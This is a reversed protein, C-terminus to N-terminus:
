KLKKEMFVINKKENYKLKKYFGFAKSKKDSILRLKRVGKQKYKEEAFKVLAKGIGKGQYKSKLWLENISAKKNNDTDIHIVIFGAIERDIIGVYIDQKKFFNNTQKFATESNWKEKYPKKTSEIKLIEAIEKLDKKEAKRIKVM